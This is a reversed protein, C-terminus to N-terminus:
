SPLPDAPEPRLQQPLLSMPLLRRWLSEGGRVQRWLQNTVLRADEGHDTGSVGSESFAEAEASRRIRELAQVGDDALRQAMAASILETTANRPLRVGADSAQAVLERWLGAAGQRTRVFRQLLRVILPLLVLLLLLPAVFWGPDPGAPADDGTAGASADPPLSPTTSDDPGSPLDESASPEESPDSASPTPTENSASPSESPEWPTPETGNPGWPNDEPDSAQAAGNMIPPTVDVIVWGIGDIFVESWAHMDNTTVVNWGPEDAPSGPLFGIVVRSPIDLARALMTFLSAYHVCYGVREEMFDLLSAWQGGDAEGFNAFPVTESYQWSDDRFSDVLANVLGMDSGDSEATLERAVERLSELETPVETHPRGPQPPLAGYVSFAEPILVPVHSATWQMDEALSASSGTLEFSETVPDLEVEIDDSAVEITGPPVPLNDTRLGLSRITTTDSERWLGYREQDGIEAIETGEPYEAFGGQSVDGLTTLQLYTKNVRSSRYELVDIPAPRQLNSSLDIDTSLIPAGPAFIGNGEQTLWNPPRLEVDAPNPAILPLAIVIAAVAAVASVATRRMRAGRETSLVLAIAFLVAVVILPVLSAELPLQVPIAVPAFLWLAALAPLRVVRMVLDNLLVILAAASVVATQVADAMPIPVDHYWMIDGIGTAFSRGFSVATELPGLQFATHQAEIVLLAVIAFVTQLWWATVRANFTGSGVNRVGLGILVMAGTVFATPLLWGGQLGPSATLISALALAFLVAAFLAAAGADERRDQRVARRKQPQQVRM